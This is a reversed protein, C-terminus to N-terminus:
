LCRKTNSFSINFHLFRRHQININNYKINNVETKENEIAM